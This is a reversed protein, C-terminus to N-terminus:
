MTLDTHEMDGHDDHQTPTTPESAKGSANDLGLEELLKAPVESTNRCKPYHSCGLFPGRRSSRIVMPNGCESCDIDTAIVNPKATAGPAPPTEGKLKAVLEIGKQAEEQLRPVLAEIKQKQEGEIKSLMLMSRCKPFKSCSLWPGRKGGRLYMMSQCKPCKVETEIPPAKPPQPNGEKDLNIITSCVPTKGDEGKISYGACGLFMGFRGQRKIMERGCKPCKYPSVERM